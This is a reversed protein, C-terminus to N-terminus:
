FNWLLRFGILGENNEDLYPLAYIQLKGGMIGELTYAPFWEITLNLHGFQAQYPIIPDPVFSVSSHAIVAACLASCLAGM